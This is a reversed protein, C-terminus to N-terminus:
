AEGVMSFSMQYNASGNLFRKFILLVKNVFKALENTSTTMEFIDLNYYKDVGQDVNANKSLAHLHHYCKLLMPHLIKRDYKEIITKGQELGIFSSM